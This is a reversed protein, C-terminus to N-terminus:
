KKNVIVKAPRIVKNNLMYGKEVEEVIENDKLKDNKVTMLAEHYDTNFIEGVSKIEKLKNKELVKLINKYVLELGKDKSVILGKRMNDIEPLLQKILEINANQVINGRENDIRKKYNEFDAQLIKIQNLLVKNDEELKKSKNEKSM